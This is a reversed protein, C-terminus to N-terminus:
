KRMETTCRIEYVTGAHKGAIVAMAPAVAQVNQQLAKVALVLEKLATKVNRSLEEDELGLDAEDLHKLARDMFDDAEGQSEKALEQLHQNFAKPVVMLFNAGAHNQVISRLARDAQEKDSKMRRIIRTVHDWSGVGLYRDVIVMAFSTMGDPYKDPKAVDLGVCFVDTEQYTRKRVFQNYQPNTSFRTFLQSLTFGAAQPYKLGWLLTAEYVGAMKMEMKFQRRGTKEDVKVFTRTEREKRAFDVFLYMDSGLMDLIESLNLGVMMKMMQMYANFQAVANQDTAQLMKLVEDHLRKLDVRVMVCVARTRGINPVHFEGSGTLLERLVPSINEGHTLLARVDSSVVGEKASVLAAAGVHQCQDLSLLTNFIRLAKLQGQAMRVEWDGPMFGPRGQGKKEKEAQKKEAEAIKRKLSKEAQAVLTPIHSMTVCLPVDNGAVLRSFFPSETVAKEPSVMLAAWLERPNSDSLILYKGLRGLTAMDTSDGTVQVSRGDEQDEGPSTGLLAILEGREVEVDKRDFEKSEPHKEKQRDLLARTQEMFDAAVEEDPTEVILSSTYDETHTSTHEDFEGEITKFTKPDMKPTRFKHVKVVPQEKPIVVVYLRTEAIRDFLAPQFEHKAALERGLSHLNMIQYVVKAGQDPDIWKLYKQGEALIRGVDLHVYLATGQVPLRAGLLERPEQATAVGPALLLVIALTRRLPKWM